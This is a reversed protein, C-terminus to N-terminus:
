KSYDKLWGPARRDRNSRRLGSVTSSPVQTTSASQEEHQLNSQTATAQLPPNIATSVSTDIPTGYNLEMDLDSDDTDSSVTETRRSNTM